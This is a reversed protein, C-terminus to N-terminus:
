KTSLAIFTSVCIGALYVRRLHCSCRWQAHRLFVKSLGMSSTGFASPAMGRAIAAGILLQARSQAFFTGFPSLCWVLSQQGAADLPKTSSLPAEKASEEYIGHRLQRTIKVTLTVCLFPPQLMAASSTTDERSDTSFLLPM